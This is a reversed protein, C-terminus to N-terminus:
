LRVTQFQLSSTRCCPTQSSSSSHCSPLLIFLLPDRLPLPPYRSCIYTRTLSGRPQQPPLYTPPSMLASFGTLPRLKPPPPHPLQPVPSAPFAAPHYHHCYQGTPAAWPSPLDWHACHRGPSFPPSLGPGRGESRSGEGRGAYGQQFRSRLGRWLGLDRSNMSTTSFTEPTEGKM